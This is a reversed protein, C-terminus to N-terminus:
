ESEKEFSNVIYILEEKTAYRWDYELFKVSKKKKMKDCALYVLEHLEPNKELVTLATESNIYVKSENVVVVARNQYPFRYEGIDTIAKEWHEKLLVRGLSDYNYFEIEKGVETNNITPLSTFTNKPKEVLTDVFNNFETDDTTMFNKFMGLKFKKTENPFKISLMYDFENERIDVDVVEGEGYVKHKVKLGIFKM